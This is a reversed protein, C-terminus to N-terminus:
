DRAFRPVTALAAMVHRATVPPDDFLFDHAGPFIRVNMLGTTYDRWGDVDDSRRTAPDAAGIWVHLDASVPARDPRYNSCMMYEARWHSILLAMLDPDTRLGPALPEGGTVRAIVQEDSLEAASHSPLLHPAAQAALVVGSLCAPQDRDILRAVEFGVIAGLSHGVVLMPRRAAEPAIAEAVAAARDTIGAAAAAAAPRPTITVFEVEPLHLRLPRTLRPSGGIGALFLVLPRASRATLPPSFVMANHHATVINV